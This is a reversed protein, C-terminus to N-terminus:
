APMENLPFHSILQQAIFNEVFAGENENFLREGQVLLEVPSRAM